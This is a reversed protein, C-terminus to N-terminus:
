KGRFLLEFRTGVIESIPSAVTPSKTQPVFHMVAMLIGKGGEDSARWGGLRGM